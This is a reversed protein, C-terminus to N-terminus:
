VSSEHATKRMFFIKGLDTEKRHVYLCGLVYAAIAFNGLLLLAVLWIGRTILRNERWAVYLWFTLFGFYADFMTALGWPDSCVTIYGGIVNLAKGSYAPLMSQSPTVCAYWSVWTMAIFVGVFYFGIIKKMTTPPSLITFEKSNFVNETTPAFM